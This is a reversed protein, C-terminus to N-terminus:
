KISNIIQHQIQQEKLNQVQENLNIELDRLRKIELILKQTKIDPVYIKLNQLVAKSISPMNTGTASKKLWRQSDPHNIFWVVYEPIIKEKFNDKIRIVLFTSSAVALGNKSEYWTAFNKSSKASFLVDGHKLLHKETKSDLPIDPHVPGLFQGKESFHKAQLYIIESNLATQAYIGTQITAIDNLSKQM